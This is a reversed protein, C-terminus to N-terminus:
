RSSAGKSRGLKIQQMQRGMEDLRKQGCLDEAKPFIEDEEESMHQELNEKLEELKEQFDGDDSSLMSMEELIQDVTQHEEIAEVILDRTEEFERMAPYFVQEEVRTHLTLASKLQNFLETPAFEVGGEDADLSGELNELQEILELAERHDEKLLEIANMSIEKKPKVSGKIVLYDGYEILLRQAEQFFV